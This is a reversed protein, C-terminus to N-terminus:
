RKCAGKMEEVSKLYVYTKGNYRYLGHCFGPGGAVVDRWGTPSKTAQVLPMGEGGAFILRWGGPVPTVINFQSGANGYCESSADYVMVEPQGDGNLDVVPGDGGFQEDEFLGVASSGGCGTWQGATRKYGAETLIAALSNPAVSGMEYPAKWGATPLTGPATKAPTIALALNKRAQVTSVSSYQETQTDHIYPTVRTGKVVNINRWGDTTGEAPKPAGEVSLINQWVGDPRRMIIDSKIPIPTEDPCKREGLIIYELKGDGTLDVSGVGPRTPIKSDACYILVTQGNPTLEYGAASMIDIRDKLPMSPPFGAGAQAPAALAQGSLLISFVIGGSFVYPNFM